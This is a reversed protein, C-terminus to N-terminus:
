LKLFRVNPFLKGTEQHIKEVNWGLTDTQLVWSLSIRIISRKQNEFNWTPVTQNCRYWHKLKEEYWKMIVRYFESSMLVTLKWDSPGGIYVNDEDHNIISSSKPDEEHVPVDYKPFYDPHLKTMENYVLRTSWKLINRELIWSLHIQIPLLEDRRVSSPGVGRRIWNSIEHHSYNLIKQYLEQSMIVRQQGQIELDTEFVCKDYHNPNFIDYDEEPSEDESLQSTHTLFQGM